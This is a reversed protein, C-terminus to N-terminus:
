AEAGLLEVARRIVSSRTLPQGEAVLQQRARQQLKLRRGDVADLEAELAAVDVDDATQTDDSNAQDWWPGAEALRAPSRTAWDSAVTVLAAAAQDPPWGRGRVALDM